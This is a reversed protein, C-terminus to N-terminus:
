VDLGCRKIIKQIGARTIDLARAAHTRNGDNAILAARVYECEYKSVAERLPLGAHVGNGIGVPDAVGRLGPSLTGARLPEGPPTLAVARALENELQRVNGPWDYAALTRELEDSVQPTARGQRAALLPLLHAVLLAVDGPRERLPPLDLRVTNIRYLLDERFTGEKVARELDANTAAVIRADVTRLRSEGVRRYEGEQLVRLLAVQAPAPLEGVEDLFLTGGHAQAFLGARDRTAGTYSGRTAGFLEAEVLGEPLTALNCAVFPADRRPSEFHVLRAILEKGTGTEGTLLVPLDTPGVRAVVSRVQELASSRGILAPRGKDRQLKGRLQRNEDALTDREARLEGLLRHNRIALAMPGAVVMVRELHTPLFRGGAEGLPLDRVDAQLVGFVDEGVWLPACLLSRLTLMEVSLAGPLERGADEALLGVRDEVARTMLVRDVVSASLTDADVPRPTSEGRALQVVHEPGGARGRRGFVLATVHTAPPVLALTHRLGVALVSPLSDAALLERNLAVFAPWAESELHAPTVEAIPRSLHITAGDGGPDDSADRRVRVRVPADRAGLLLEDAPSIPVFEKAPLLGPVGGAARRLATGNRSGLDRAVLGEPFVRLELHFTSIAVATLVVANSPDRGLTASRGFVDVTRRRGNEEVTIQM